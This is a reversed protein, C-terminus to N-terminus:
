LGQTRAPKGQTRMCAYIGRDGAADPHVYSTRCDCIRRFGRPHRFFYRIGDPLRRPNRNHKEHVQEGELQKYNIMNYLITLDM